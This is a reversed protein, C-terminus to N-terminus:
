LYKKKLIWDYYDIIEEDGNVYRIWRQPANKRCQAVREKRSLKKDTIYEYYLWSEWYAVVAAVDRFTIILAIQYGFFVFSFIPAHEYRFDNPNWKTKWGLGCYSFGVIIPVPKTWGKFSEALIEPDKGYNIHRINNSEEIAKKLCDLKDFKVWKRPYFYPVGVRTKGAYVKVTFMKFPSNVIKLWRLETSFFHNIRNLIKKM